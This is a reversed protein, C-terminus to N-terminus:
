RSLLVKMEASFNSDCCTSSCVTAFIKESSIFISKGEELYIKYVFFTRETSIIPWHNKLINQCVILDCEYMLVSKTYVAYDLGYM